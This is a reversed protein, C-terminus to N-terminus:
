IGCYVARLSLMAPRAIVGVGDPLFVGAKKKQRVNLWRAGCIAPVDCLGKNRSHTQTQLTPLSLKLYLRRLKGTPELLTMTMVYCLWTMNIIFLKDQASNRMSM